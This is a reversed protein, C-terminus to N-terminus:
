PAGYKVRAYGQLSTLEAQTLVRNFILVEAYTWNGSYIAIAETPIYAAALMFQTVSFATTYAGGASIVGNLLNYQKTGSFLTGVVNISNDTPITSTQCNVSNAYTMLTENPVNVYAFSGSTGDYHGPSIRSSFIRSHSVYAGRKYIALMTLTLGTFTSAPIMAMRNSDAATFVVGPRGGMATASYAPQKVAISEVFSAYGNGSSDAWASVDAGNLTIGRDARYHALPRLTRPSWLERRTLHSIGINPSQNVPM